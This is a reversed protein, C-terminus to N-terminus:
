STGTGPEPAKLRAARYVITLGQPSGQWHREVAAVGAGRVTGRLAWIIVVVNDAFGIVPIFDPILNIPQVNYLLAIRLRWRVSSPLSPDRYLAHLLRIADPFVKAFDRISQGSPRLALFGIALLVWAVLLSLALGILVQTVLTLGGESKSVGARLL